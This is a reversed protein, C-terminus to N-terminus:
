LEDIPLIVDWIHFPFYFMNSVVLWYYKVQFLGNSFIIGTVDSGNIWFPSFLASGCGSNKTFVFWCRLPKEASPRTRWPRDQDRSTKPVPNRGGSTSAGFAHWQTKSQVVRRLLLTASSFLCNQRLWWLGDERIISPYGNRVVIARNECMKLM